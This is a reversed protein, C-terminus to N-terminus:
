AKTLASRDDAARNSGFSGDHAGTSKQDYGGGTDTIRMPSFRM